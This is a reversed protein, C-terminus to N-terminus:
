HFTLAKSMNKYVREAVIGNKFRNERTVDCYMFKHLSMLGFFFFFVLQNDPTKWFPPHPGKRRKKELIAVLCKFEFHGGVKWNLIVSLKKNIAIMCTLQTSIDM